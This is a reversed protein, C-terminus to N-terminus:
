QLNPSFFVYGNVRKFSECYVGLVSFDKTRSFFLTKTAYIYRLCIIKHHRVSLPKDGRDTGNICSTPQIIFRLYPEPNLLKLNQVLCFCFCIVGLRENALCVNVEKM